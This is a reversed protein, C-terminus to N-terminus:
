DELVESGVEGLAILMPLQDERPVTAVVWKHTGGQGKARM